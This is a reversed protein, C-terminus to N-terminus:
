PRRAAADISWHTNQYMLHGSTQGDIAGEVFVGIVNKGPRLAFTGSNSGRLLAGPKPGFMSSTFMSNASRSTDLTCVEGVKMEHNLYLVQGTTYNRLTALRGPGTFQFVARCDATGDYEIANACGASVEGTIQKGGVMVVQGNPDILLSLLYATYSVDPAVWGAGSWVGVTGPINSDVRDFYGVAWVECTRPHIAIKQVSAGGGGARSVGKGMAQVTTGNHRAIYNCPVGNLQTFEGGLYLIGDCGVACALIRGNASTILPVVTNTAPDYIAANVSAVGNMTNFEGVALMRGDPLLCVDEIGFGNPVTLGTDIWKNIGNWYALAPTNYRVGYQYLGGYSDGLPSNPTTLFGRPSYVCGTSINEWATAGPIWRWTGALQGAAFVTGTTPRRIVCFANGPFPGGPLDTWTTARAQLRKIGTPQDGAVYLNDELDRAVRWLQTAQEPVPANLTTWNGDASRAIMRVKPLVQNVCLPVCVDFTDTISPPAVEEFQLTITETTPNDFNIGLGDVFYGRIEVEGACGDCDGPAYRLIAPVAQSEANSPAFISVLEQRLENLGRLGAGSLKGVISFKRPRILTRQITRGGRLADSDGLHEQPPLGLGVIATPEFGLESLNVLEGGATRASVSDNAPGEWRGDHDGDFYTAHTHIGEMLMAADVYFPTTVHEVLGLRWLVAREFLPAAFVVEIRRWGCTIRQESLAIVNGLSEVALVMTLDADPSYVALSLTYDRNETVPVSGYLGLPRDIQRCNSQTASAFEESGTGYLGKNVTFGNVVNANGISTITVTFHDYVDHDQETVDFAGVGLANLEEILSALWRDHDPNQFKITPTVRPMIRNIGNIIVGIVYGENAQIDFTATYDCGQSLVDECTRTVPLQEEGDVVFRGSIINLGNFTNLTGSVNIYTTIFKNGNTDYFTNFHVTVVPRDNPNAAQLKEKVTFAVYSTYGEGTADGVAPGVSISEMPFVAGNVVLSTITSVDALATFQLSFFCLDAPDECDEQNLAIRHLEQNGFQPFDDYILASVVYTTPETVIQLYQYPYTTQGSLPGYAVTFTALGLANLRAALTAAFGFQLNTTPAIPPNFRYDVGNITIGHVNSYGDLIGDGQNDYILINREYTCNPLQPLCSLNNAAHFVNDYVFYCHRLILYEVRNSNHHSDIFWTYRTILAEQIGVSFAGLGLSNLRNSLEQQQQLKLRAPEFRYEVGDIVVGVVDFLDDNRTWPDTGTDFYEVEVLVRYSCRIQTQRQVRVARCGAYVEDSTAAIVVNPDASPLTREFSPDRLLNRARGPVAVSIASKGGERLVIDTIPSVARDYRRERAM